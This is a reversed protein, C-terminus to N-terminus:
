LTSVLNGRKAQEREVCEFLARINGEGFGDHHHRQIIEFFVTPRDQVLHTFIQLLYGTRESSGTQIHHHHKEESGNSHENIIHHSDTIQCQKDNQDKDHNNKNDNHDNENSNLTADDFDILIKLEQLKDFDEKLQVNSKQLKKKIYTYYEPPVEQFKV